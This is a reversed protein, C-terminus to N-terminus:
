YTWIWFRFSRRLYSYFYYHYFPRTSRIVSSGSSCFYYWPV